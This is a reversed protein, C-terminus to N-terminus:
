SSFKLIGSKSFDPQMLGLDKYLQKPIGIDAIYLTSKLDSQILESKLAALTLISHPTFVSELTHKNFGTPLDLSINYTNSKEQQRLINVTTEPIPLRQSFGFFADVFIDPQNVQSTSVGFAIARNFQIAPLQKLNRDPIVLHVEYGWGALRRAAVLGGGGNNGTGVGIMIRSKSSAHMTVLHALQLGANEMMLEIPLAYQHIAKQDMTKFQDITLFSFEM